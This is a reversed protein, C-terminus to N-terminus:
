GGKLPFWGQHTNVATEGLQQEAKTHIYPFTRVQRYVCLVWFCIKLALWLHRQKQIFILMQLEMTRKISMEDM